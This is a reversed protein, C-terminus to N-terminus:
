RTWQWPSGLIGRGESSTEGVNCKKVVCGQELDQPAVRNGRFSYGWCHGLVAKEVEGTVERVMLQTAQQRKGRLTESDCLYPIAVKTELELRLGLSSDQGLGGSPQRSM